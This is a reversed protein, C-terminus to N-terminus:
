MWEELIIGTPTASASQLQLVVTGEAGVYEAYAGHVRGADGGLVIPQFGPGDQGATNPLWMQLNAPSAQPPAAGGPEIPVAGQPPQTDIIYGQLGQPVGNNQAPDESIRVKSAMITLVINKMAGSNANLAINTIKPNVAAM